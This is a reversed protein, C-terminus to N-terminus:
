GRALNQLLSKIEGIDSKLQEVEAQLQEAKCGEERRAKYIELSRRDRNILAMSDTERYLSHNETQVLIKKDM